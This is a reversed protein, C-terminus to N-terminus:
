IHVQGKLFIPAPSKINTTTVGVKCPLFFWPIPNNGRLNLFEGVEPYTLATNKYFNTTM